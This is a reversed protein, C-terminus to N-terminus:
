SEGKTQAWARMDDIAFEVAEASEQEDVIRVLDALPPLSRAAALAETATCCNTRKAGEPPKSVGM